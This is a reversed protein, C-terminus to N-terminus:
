KVKELSGWSRGVEVDAALKVRGSPWSEMIRRVQYVVEDVADNRVEFLLSDHVPLILKAPVADQKIWEVAAVLSAICYDSATGQIPTNVAGNEATIRIGDDPEAIRWLSRRRARAGDWETFTDGCKRSETLRDKCWRALKSFKGLIADMVKQAEARSVGFEEALSGATKGYLVGFNVSKAQSRHKKEVKEPPIGWMMQSVMQATRLHFDVGSEFIDIMVPDDSLMAAIRLELQSYDAQVFTYGPACCFVDRAMKGEPSDPRPINQLNPDKCSTRGSRAGDLLISPHIRGHPRIYPLMGRAYTSRLKTVRRYEILAPIMPHKHKLEELVEKDTSEENSDTLKVSPLGLQKFLIDRLQPVSNWNTGPFYGNLKAHAEVEMLELHRDFMLLTDRDAPIGWAEVQAIAASAGSVIKDWVMRIGPEAALLPEYHECLAATAVSDRANYRHMVPRELKDLVAYVWSESEFLDEGKHDKARVIRELEGDVGVSSLPPPPPGPKKGKEIAKERRKEAALIDRVAKVAREKAERNEEKMGGMGVREAMKALNAMAESDLLKLWLRTDADIGEPWIGFEQLVAQMDFKVNQGSKKARPDALYAKLIERTAPNVIAERPWLFSDSDGEACFSIAVVRFSPSYTQGATECDFAVREFSRLYEVARRADDATEVIHVMADWPPMPPEASLAWKMDDEFWRRVFRNRTAMAPHGVFFVPIPRAGLQPLYAYSRRQLMAAVSRGMVSFAATSGVVVIRTPQVERATAALYGRCAEVVRELKADKAYCRVALDYAVPGKWFNQVMTRLLKGGESMLPRGLADDTRLPAEGVVLLGGPEGEASLCVNKPSTLKPLPCRQCNRDVALPTAQELASLPPSEYLPLQRM